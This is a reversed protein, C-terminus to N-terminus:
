TLANVNSVLPACERHPQVTIGNSFAPQVNFAWRATAIINYSRVYKMKICGSQKSLGGRECGMSKERVEGCNGKM